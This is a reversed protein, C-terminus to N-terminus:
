KMALGTTVMKYRHNIGYEMAASAPSDIVNSENPATSSVPVHRGRYSCVRSCDFGDRGDECAMLVVTLFNILEVLGYTSAHRLYPRIRHVEEIISDPMMMMEHLYWTWNRGARSWEAAM